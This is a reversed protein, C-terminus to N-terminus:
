KYQKQKTIYVLEIRNDYYQHKRTFHTSIVFLIIIIKLFSPILNQQMTHKSRLKENTPPDYHIHIITVFFGNYNIM